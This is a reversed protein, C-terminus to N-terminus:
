FISLWWCISSLQLWLAWCLDSSGWGNFDLYLIIVMFMLSLFLIWFHLFFVPLTYLVFVSISSPIVSLFSHDSTDSAATLQSRLYRSSPIVHLGTTVTIFAMVTSDTSYTIHFSYDPLYSMFAVRKLPQTPFSSCFTAPCLKISFNQKTNWIPSVPLLRFTHTYSWGSCILFCFSFIGIPLILNGLHHPCRLVM